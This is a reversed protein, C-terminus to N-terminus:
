IEGVTHIGLVDRYYHAMWKLGNHQLYKIPRGAVEEARQIAERYSMGLYLMQYAGIVMGTRDSGAKCHVFVAVPRGYDRSMHAHLSEVLRYTGELFPIHALHHALAHHHHDPSSLAGYVPHHILLLRDPHTRAYHEEIRLLSSEVVTNLLSIDLILLNPPLEAGHIKELEHSMSDMLEDYAFHNHSLPMNGRFLFNSHHHNIDVLRLKRPSFHEEHQHFHAKELAETAPPTNACVNISLLALLLYLSLRQFIRM